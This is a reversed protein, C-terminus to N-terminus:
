FTGGSIFTPLQGKIGEIKIIRTNTRSTGQQIGDITITNANLFHFEISYFATSSIYMGIHYINATGYALTSKSYMQSNTDLTTYTSFNSTSTIKIFDYNEINDTLTYNGAANATGDFLVNTEFGGYQNVSVNRYEKVIFSLYLNSLNAISFDSSLFSVSVDTDPTYVISGFNSFSASTVTAPVGRYLYKIKEATLSNCLFLDIGSTASASTILTNLQIEYTKGGKLKVGGNELFMNGTIVTNLAIPTNVAINTLSSSIGFEGYLLPETTLPNSIEKYTNYETVIPQSIEHINLLTYPNHITTIVANGIVFAIECDATPTYIATITTRSPIAGSSNTFWMTELTTGSTIDKLMIAGSSNCSLLCEFNIKYTKSAKLKITGNTTLTINGLKTTDFKIYNGVALNTTQSTSLGFSGYSVTYNDKVDMPDVVITRGIEEIILYTAVSNIIQSGSIQTIKVGVNCNSTAKYICTIGTLGTDATNFNLSTAAFFQSIQTNSSNNYIAMQTYGTVGGTYVATTIKYTRGKELSVTYDPNITLAKSEKVTNFQIYNNLVATQNTSMTFYGYNNYTKDLIDMPDLMYTRSIENVALYSKMSSITMGSTVVSLIKIAIQTDVTPTYIMEINNEGSGTTSYTGAYSTMTLSIEKALALDYLVFNIYGAASQAYISGHISYTRGKKLTITRNTLTIGNSEITNVFNVYDGAVATQDASMTFYGYDLKEGVATHLSLDDISNQLTDIKTFYPSYRTNIETLAKKLNDSNILKTVITSATEGFVIKVLNVIDEDTSVTLDPAKAYLGTVSDDEGSEPTTISQLLNGNRSSIKIDPVYLGKASDTEGSSLTSVVQLKNGTRNSVNVDFIVKKNADQSATVTLTNLFADFDIGNAKVGTDTDGVFWSGTTENVHPTIGDVLYARLVSVLATKTDGNTSDDILLKCQDTLTSAQELEGITIYNDTMYDGRKKFNFHVAKWFHLFPQNSM